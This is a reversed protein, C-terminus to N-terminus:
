PLTVTLQAKETKVVAAAAAEPESVIFLNNVSGHQLRGFGSKYIAQKMAAHMRRCAKGKWAAPVCLVFEVCSNPTCGVRALRDRTHRFLQELYHAILDTDTEILGAMSLRRCTEQLPARAKRTSESEDLLLKFRALRKSHDFQGSARVVQHQVGYGWYLWPTATSTTSVSPLAGPRPTHESDSNSDSDSESDSSSEERGNDVDMVTRALPKQQHDPYRKTGDPQQGPGPYWLETPVDHVPTNRHAWYPFADVMEIQSMTLHRRQHEHSYGVYAVSSFTTGFDVAVLFHIPDQVDDSIADTAADQMEIDTAM